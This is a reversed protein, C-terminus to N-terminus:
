VDDLRHHREDGRDAVVVHSDEAVGEGGNGALLGANDLEADGEDGGGLGGFGEGDDRADGILAAGRESADGGGARGARGSHGDGGVGIAGAVGGARMLGEMEVRRCAWQRVQLQAQETDVLDLVGGGGDGGGIQQARAAQGYVVGGDAGAQAVGAPGGAELDDSAGGPGDYVARVVGVGEGAHEGGQAAVEGEIAQDKHKAEHGVFVEGADGGRDGARPHIGDDGGGGGVRAGGRGGGKGGDHALVQGCRVDVFGAIDAGGEGGGVRQGVRAVQDADGAREVEGGFRQAPEGGPWVHGGAGDLDGAYVVSEGEGRLSLPGPPSSEM